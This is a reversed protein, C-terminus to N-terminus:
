RNGVNDIGRQRFMVEEDSPFPIDIGLKENLAQDMIQVVESLEIKSLETTSAKEPYLASMIPRFITEKVNEETPTIPVNVTKRM